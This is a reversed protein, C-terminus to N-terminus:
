ICSFSYGRSLIRLTLKDTADNTFSHYTINSHFKVFASMVFSINAVCTSFEGWSVQKRLGIKLFINVAIGCM